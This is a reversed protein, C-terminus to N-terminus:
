KLGISKRHEAISKAVSELAQQETIQGSGVKIGLALGENFGRSYALQKDLKRTDYCGTMTTCIILLLLTKNKM